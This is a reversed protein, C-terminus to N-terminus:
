QVGAPPIAALGRGAKAGPDPLVPHPSPTVVPHHRPNPIQGLRSPVTCHYLTPWFSQRDSRSSTSKIDAFGFVLGGAKLRGAPVEISQVALPIGLPMGLPDHACHVVPAHAVAFLAPVAAVGVCILAASVAQLVAPFSYRRSADPVKVTLEVSLTGAFQARRPAPGFRVMRCQVIVEPGHTARSPPAGLKEPAVAIVLPAVAPELLMTTALAEPIEVPIYRM